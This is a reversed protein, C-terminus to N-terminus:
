GFGRFPGGRSLKLSRRRAPASWACVSERVFRGRLRGIGERLLSLVGGRRVVFLAAPLPATGALGSPIPQRKEGGRASEKQPSITNCIREAMYSKRKGRKYCVGGIKAKEPRSSHPLLVFGGSATAACGYPASKSSSQPSSSAAICLRIAILILRLFYM